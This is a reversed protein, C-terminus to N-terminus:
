LLLATLGNLTLVKSDAKFKGALRQGTKKEIADVVYVADLPGIYKFLSVNEQINIEKGVISCIIERIMDKVTEQNM